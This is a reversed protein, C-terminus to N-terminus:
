FSPPPPVAIQSNPKKGERMKRRLWLAVAAFLLLMSTVFLSRASLGM